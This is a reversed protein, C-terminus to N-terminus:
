QFFACYQVHHQYADSLTRYICYGCVWFGGSFVLTKCTRLITIPFHTTPTDVGGYSSLDQCQTISFIAGFLGGLALLINFNRKIHLKDKPHYNEPIMATQYWEALLCCLIAIFCYIWSIDYLYM